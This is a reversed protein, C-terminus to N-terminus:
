LGKGSLVTKITYVMIKMDNVLSMNELYILDYKLREEMEKVSSAYGFKVMGMSTLGPRVQHVLAYYPADKMIQEIFYAREPRPGVIAMDGKLVNWFQPLEDLRYKRLIRGINTVRDDSTSSLMPVGNKEADHTMTRFKLINFPKNRYGIREQKYIVNGKSDFRILLSIVLFLPSLLLLAIASFLFDSVRKINSACETMNSGAVDILPEGTLNTLKVRSILIHFLDPTIKIPLNLPYLVNLVFLIKSVNHKTPIILLEKIELRNCVEKLEGLEYLNYDGPEASKEGPLNVFGRIQYGSSQKASELRDAFTHASKGNGIILTPFTLVRRHIKRTVDLTMVCRIIYTPVFTCIWEWMIIEYNFMRDRISDNALIALYVIM